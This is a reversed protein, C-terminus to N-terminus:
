VLFAVIGDEGLDLRVISCYLHLQMAVFIKSSVLKHLICLVSLATSCVLQIPGPLGVGFRGMSMGM